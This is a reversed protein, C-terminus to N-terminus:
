IIWIGNSPIQRGLAKLAVQLPMLAKEAKTPVQGDLARNVLILVKPNQEKTTKVQLVM